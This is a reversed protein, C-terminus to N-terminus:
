KLVQVLNNFDDTWLRWGPRAEIPKAAEAIPAKDLVAQNAAVLVWDSKSSLSEDGDDAVLVSRLGRSTALAEVVPALNLYRNTVHFAIIGDSKVHRRYIDLAEATILHVPIADSSFADIALVDFAQPRERELTLRADGLAIETRAASDALFTFYRRAIDAVAPNIDYFRYLDDRSGYTALTGTGLGIVGVKLPELRPHLSELARGIGSSPTYYTTPRQRLEPANYQTGHLISGHILSRRLTSDAGLERVRLVGYFNRTAIMTDEFFTRGAWVACGLAVMAAIGGLVPFAAPEDRAQWLLLWACAVLAVGLEFYAPTALPAVIGVLVSGAAGGLAVMLYFRTLWRAHPKVRVLEGHCFLCALFLGVLFVGIQLELEHTLRSDALTWAMVCLMAALMSMVTQRQYWGSRDFALIFTLLYLALPAIWLLPVAAVNQTIHNSVALLLVSGMAALSCWLVQRAVTPHAEDQMDASRVPAEAALIASARVPARLATIAATTALVAFIGYAASWGLAQAGTSVWPELLFPYGVLALMSALNSLAFLRYPNVGPRLRAFWAQLMPSTTSLLLYPLGITATLLGLILWSPSETGAPKWHAGPIIPLTLLSLALLAVHVVAQGRTGLRRVVLDSYAYGALLASQFFVLCTTWVAASGGFWPLIQKATMPQVLFLLFASLFITGAFLALM